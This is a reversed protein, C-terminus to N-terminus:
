QSLGHKSSVNKGRGNRIRGKRAADTMNDFQTGLFLHDPNICQPNDCRHLVWLGAPISGNHFEWSIRHATRMRSGRGGDRIIGYGFRHKGAIWEWCGDSKRVKSWFREVLPIPKPAM